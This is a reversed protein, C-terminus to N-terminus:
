RQIRFKRNVFRSSLECQAGSVVDAQVVDFELESNGMSRGLCGCVSIHTGVREGMLLTAQEEEWCVRFGVIVVGWLSSGLGSLQM